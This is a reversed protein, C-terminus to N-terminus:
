ALEARTRERTRKELDQGGTFRVLVAGEDNKNKGSPETKSKEFHASKQNKTRTSRVWAEIRSSARKGSLRDGCKPKKRLIEVGFDQRERLSQHETSTEGVEIGQDSQRELRRAKAVSIENETGPESKPGGSETEMERALDQQKGSGRAV